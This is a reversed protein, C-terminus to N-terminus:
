SDPQDSAAASPLKSGIPMADPLSRFQRRLRVLSIAQGPGMPVPKPRGNVHDTAISPMFDAYILQGGDDNLVSSLLGM